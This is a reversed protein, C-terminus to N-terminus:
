FAVMMRLKRRGIAQIELLLKKIREGEGIKATEKTGFSLIM